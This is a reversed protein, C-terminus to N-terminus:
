SRARRLTESPREGFLTHYHAAFHGFHFFGHHVAAATVTTDDGPRSLSRRVRNLRMGMVFRRPSIGLCSRFADNLTRMPVALRLCIDSVTVIDDSAEVLEWALRAIRQRASWGVISDPARVMALLADMVERGLRAAGARVAASDPLHATMTTWGTCLQIIRRTCDRLADHRAALLPGGRALQSFSAGLVADAVRDMEGASPFAMACAFQAPRLLRFEEGPRVLGATGSQLPQHGLFVGSPASFPLAVAYTGPPPTGQSTITSGYSTLSIRISPLPVSIIDAAYAGPAMLNHRVNMGRVRMREACEEPDSAVIREAKV